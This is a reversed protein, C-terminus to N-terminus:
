KQARSMAAHILNPSQIPIPIPIMVGSASASFFRSHGARASNIM